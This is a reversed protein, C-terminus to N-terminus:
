LVKEGFRLGSRRRRVESGIDEVSNITIAEGVYKEWMCIVIIHEQGGNVSSQVCYIISCNECSCNVCSCNECSCSVFSLQVKRFM